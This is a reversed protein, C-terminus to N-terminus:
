MVENLSRRVPDGLARAVPLPLRRWLRTAWAFRERQEELTPAAVGSKLLYQYHLPVPTAGWKSKYQFTGSNWQSRGFDFRRLGSKIAYKIAEWYVFDTARLHSYRRISSAWPDFLTNRHAISFLTSVSAGDAFAAFVQADKAFSTLVTAYFNKSRIPTGLDRMNESYVNYFTPLNSSGISVTLGFKQAKRIENRLGSKFGLWQAEESAELDLVLTCHESNTGLSGIQRRQDRLEVMMLHDRSRIDEACTLLREEVEVSNALIGGSASFATRTRKDVFLPLIGCIAGESIAVRYESRFPYTQEVVGKWKLLQSFHSSPSANVYADWATADSPEFHRVLIPAM